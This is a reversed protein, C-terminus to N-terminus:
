YGYWSTAIKKQIVSDNFQSAYARAEKLTKFYTPFLNGKSENRKLYVRFKM